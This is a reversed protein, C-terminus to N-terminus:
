KNKVVKKMTGDPKRVLVLRGKGYDSLQRGALDFTEQRGSTQEVTSIASPITVGGMFDFSVTGDENQVINTIPKGLLNSGKGSATYMTAAPVSHDTLSDNHIHNDEAVYPYPTTSLYRNHGNVYPNQGGIIEAWDLYNRGDAHVLDFRRHDPLNNVTNGSWSSALYDVHTVLLGRGPLRLDWGVWQRNEVLYYENPNADNIIKYVAGGECVPKLNRISAASDLVVPKAWGLLIKELSSYNPPCWGNNIFNGGDMLDWQDVVSYDDDNKTPYIDPLGLSHTFEHCITGIGCSKGISWLEASATFRFASIGSNTVVGHTSTNPWISNKAVAAAENGGYGAYVFVTQEVQNDNNWDYPAFDIHLSDVVKQLAAQFSSAGYKEGKAAHNVRVPGVVDFELNLLGSSQSRFYDAVCGVGVGQTFGKENFLRNYFTLPDELTFSLDSFEVLVVLSRYTRTSDWETRLSPLRKIVRGTRSTAVSEDNAEGAVEDSVIDPTCNLYPFRRSQGNAALSLLFTMALITTIKRM